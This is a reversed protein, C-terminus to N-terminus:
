SHINMNKNNLAVIVHYIFWNYAKQQSMTYAGGWSVVVLETAALAHGLFGVLTMDVSTAIVRVFTNM